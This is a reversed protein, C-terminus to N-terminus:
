KFGQGCNAAGRLFLTKAAHYLKQVTAFEACARHEDWDEQDTSVFARLM